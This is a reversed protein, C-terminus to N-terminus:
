AAEEVEENSAPEWPCGPVPFYADIRLMINEDVSGVFKAINAVEDKGVLGPILVCEAQMKKGLAHIKKFNEKIQDNNRGTYYNHIEPNIAKISVIFEDMHTMDSALAMANTLILVYAGKEEKLYKCLRPLEPDLVAETGMFVAYKIELDKIRDIVEDYSLFKSPVTAREKTKMEEVPDDMLGFDSTEFNVYCGRCSLNCPKYIHFDISKYTPEYAIHYIKM